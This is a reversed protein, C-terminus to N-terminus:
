KVRRLAKSETVTMDCQKAIEAAANILKTVASWVGDLYLRGQDGNSTSVDPVFKDLRELALRLSTMNSDQADLTKEEDGSAQAVQFAEKAAREISPIQPLATPPGIAEVTKRIAERKAELKEETKLALQAEKDAREAETKEANDADVKRAHAFEYADKLAAGGVVAQVLEPAWESVTSAWSFYAASVGIARALDKGNLLDGSKNLARALLRTV